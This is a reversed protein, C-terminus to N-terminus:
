GVVGEQALKAIEAPSLGLEGLVENTHEGTVPVHRRLWPEGATGSMKFPASAATVTGFGPQEFQTTMENAVVQPDDFVEELEKVVTVNLSDAKMVAEWEASSKISFHHSIIESLEDLKQERKEQTDFRPDEILRDLGVTHCFTEWRPGINISQSHIYRGDSCRYTIRLVDPIPPYKTDSGGRRTMQISQCALASQLLNIELKQGRETQEREWLALMVAYATLMSAAMDFHYLYTYPPLPGGPLRRGAIDGARGQITVDAGPLDADPGAEGFATISAYILRPNIAAVDEYTFGRRRRTGVRMNIVLVDAWECLRYALERGKPKTIDLGVSRKNRNFTLFGISLGNSDPFVPVLRRASEGDPPEVKIVDAGQDGLLMAAYPGALVNSLDLVRIDALPLSM